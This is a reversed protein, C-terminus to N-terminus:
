PWIVLLGVDLALEVISGLHPAPSARRLASTPSLYPWGKQESSMLALEGAHWQYCPALLHQCKERSWTMEHGFLSAVLEGM